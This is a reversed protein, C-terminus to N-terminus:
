EAEIQIGFILLIDIKVVHFAYWLTIQKEDINTSDVRKPTM